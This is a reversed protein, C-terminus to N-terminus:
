KCAKAAKLVDMIRQEAVADSVDKKLTTAKWAMTWNQAESDWEARLAIDKDGAILIMRILRNDKGGLAKSTEYAENDAALTVPISIEGTNIVLKCIRNAHGGFNARRYIRDKMGEVETEDMTTLAKFAAESAENLSLQHSASIDLRNIVESGSQKIKDTGTKVTDTVASAAKGVTKAPASVAKYIGYAGGVLTVTVVAIAVWKIANFANNASEAVTAARDATEMAKKGHDLVSPKKPEEPPTETM